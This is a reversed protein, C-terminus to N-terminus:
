QQFRSVPQVGGGRVTSPVGSLPQPIRCVTCSAGQLPTFEPNLSLFHLLFSDRGVREWGGQSGHAGSCSILSATITSVPITLPSRHIFLTLIRNRIQNHYGATPPPPCGWELPVSGVRQRQTSPVTSRPPILAHSYQNINLLKSEPFYFGQYTANGM